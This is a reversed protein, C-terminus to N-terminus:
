ACNGNSIARQYIEMLRSYNKDATYKSEYELRAALGMELTREPHTWVWHVKEALDDPDAPTFHLGTRENEVIETMAGLRSALVPVGCAFAEVITAGFTEYCESPFILFRSSKLAALVQERSRFGCFSVDSLNRRLAEAELQVRLPGDGIIHLPVGNGLREWADLLTCLGKEASLRGAFLAYSGAATRAGPDPHVFNPKVFAKETPLGAEVFKSRAFASPVVYCDVMRTWTQLWRHTALSIAVVATALHSDRYCGYQVGRWLSHDVCEECLRGNRSFTAAPCLLRYNHLTQIVPIGFEQCVSYAAPSILPFTNHFHAVDPKEQQLVRRLDNASDWAWVTRLGLRALPFIGRDTIENNHRCYENVHHGAALLLEKEGAFAVDEGGAKQYYNHSLLLKM